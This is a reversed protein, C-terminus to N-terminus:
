KKFNKISTLLDTRLKKFSDRVVPDEIRSPGETFYHFIHKILQGAQNDTLAEFVESHDFLSFIIKFSTDSSANKLIKARPM